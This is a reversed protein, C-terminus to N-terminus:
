LKLSNTISDVFSELATRVNAGSKASVEFYDASLKQAFGKAKDAPIERSSSEDARTAVLAM